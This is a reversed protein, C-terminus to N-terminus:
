HGTLLDESFLIDGDKFYAFSSVKRNFLLSKFYLCSEKSVGVRELKILRDPFYNNTNTIHFVNSSFEQLM